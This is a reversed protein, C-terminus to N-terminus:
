AVWPGAACPPLPEGSSRVAMATWGMTGSRNMFIRYQTLWNGDVVWGESPVRFGGLYRVDESGFLGRAYVPTASLLIVSAVLIGRHGM